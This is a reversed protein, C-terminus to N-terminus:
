ESHPRPTALTIVAYWFAMALCLCAKNGPGDRLPGRVRAICYTQSYRSRFLRLDSSLGKVAFFAESSEVPSYMAPWTTIESGPSHCKGWPFPSAWRCPVPNGLRGVPWRSDPCAKRGVGDSRLIGRWLGAALLWVDDFFVRRDIALCAPAQVGPAGISLLSLLFTTRARTDAWVLPDAMPMRPRRAGERCLSPPSYANGAAMSEVHLPNWRRPRHQISAQPGPSRWRRSLACPSYPQFTSHFTSKSSM